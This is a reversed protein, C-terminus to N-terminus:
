FDWHAVHHPSRLWSAHHSTDYIDWEKSVYTAEDTELLLWALFEAVTEPCLLRNNNKLRQYFHIQEPDLNVTSRAISQMETDIIGPMVSAFAMTESELQWCRTLMSLAAKSVCYAAWGKIAFYAAGSSINLVRSRTLQQQLIQPLFLAPDLNTRLAQHWTEPQIGDIAAIPELTGANNILGDLHPIDSVHQCVSNLGAQTSVDAVFYKIHPSLAATEKLLHERRGIILVSQERTALALALAKGLGSGGGTILYMHQAIRLYARLQDYWLNCPSPM